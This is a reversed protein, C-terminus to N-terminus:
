SIYLLGKLRTYFIKANSSLTEYIPNTFFEMPFQLYGSGVNNLSNVNYAEPLQNSITCM